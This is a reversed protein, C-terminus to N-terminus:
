KQKAVGLADSIEAAAAEAYDVTAFLYGSDLSLGPQKKAKKYAAIAMRLQRSAAELMDAAGQQYKHTHRKRTRDTVPM